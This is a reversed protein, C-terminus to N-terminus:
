NFNINNRIREEKYGTDNFLVANGQSFIAHNVWAQVRASQAIIKLEKKLSEEVKSVVSVLFCSNQKWQKRQAWAEM